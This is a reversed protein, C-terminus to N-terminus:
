CNILHNYANLDGAIQVSAITISRIFNLRMKSWCGGDFKEKYFNRM